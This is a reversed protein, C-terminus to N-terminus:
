NGGQVASSPGPAGGAAPGGSPAPPLAAQAPQKTLADLEGPVEFLNRLLQTTFRLAGEATVQDVDEDSAHAGVNGVVRIHHLVPAFSQTVHGDKILKEISKMLVREKIGFHAAAAELTRRLQVAAADPVGVRLVRMAGLYYREVDEPLHRITTEAEKGAPVVTLPGIVPVNPEGHEILIANGCSPCGLTAWWRVRGDRATCKQNVARADLRTNTLGCWPCDRFAFKDDWAM